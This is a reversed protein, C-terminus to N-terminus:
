FIQAHSPNLSQGQRAVRSDLRRQAIVSNLRHRKVVAFMSFEPPLTRQRHQTSTATCCGVDPASLILASIKDQSVIVPDDRDDCSHRDCNAEVQGGRAFM